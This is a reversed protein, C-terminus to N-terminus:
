KSIWAQDPVWEPGVGFILHGTDHANKQRISARGIGHIPVVM